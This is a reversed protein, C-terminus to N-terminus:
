IYRCQLKENKRSLGFGVKERFKLVNNYGSIDIAWAPKCNYEKQNPFKMKGGKFHLRTSSTIDFNLLLNRVQSCLDFSSSSFGVQVTVSNKEKRETVSCHGDTDFLGRLLQAACKENCKLLSFPIIKSHALDFTFGINKLLAILAVSNCIVTKSKSDPNEGVRVTLGIKQFFYTLFNITKEDATEVSVGPKHIHGDGILLGFFYYWEELTANYPSVSRCNNSNKAPIYNFDAFIDNPESWFGEGKRCVLFDGVNVDKSFVWEKELTEPNLRLVRHYDLGESILGHTTKLQYTTDKPNIARDLVLNRGRVSQVYDGVEDDIMRNLGNDTWILNDWKECKSSGRGLIGLFYDSKMMSKIMMSQFPFLEVGMLVDVAFQTNEKFFDHLWLKADKDELYGKVESLRSNVDEKLLPNQAGIEWAM